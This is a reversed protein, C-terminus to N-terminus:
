LSCFNYSKLWLCKMLSVDRCNGTFLTPSMIVSLTIVVVCVAPIRGSLQTWCVMADWCM